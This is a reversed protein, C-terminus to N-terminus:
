CVDLGKPHPICKFEDRCTWLSLEVDVGNLILQGQNHIEAMLCGDFKACIIELEDEYMVGEHVM